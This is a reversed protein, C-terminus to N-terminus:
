GKPKLRVGVSDDNEFEIGAKGFAAYIALMTRSNGGVVGDSLELRRITTISIGSASALDKQKWALLARAAKM